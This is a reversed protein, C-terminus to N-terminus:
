ERNMKVVIYIKIIGFIKVYLKKGLFAPSEISGRDRYSEARILIV